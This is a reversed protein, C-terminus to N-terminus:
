IEQILRLLERRLEHPPLEHNSFRERISAPIPYKAPKAQSLDIDTGGLLDQFLAGPFHGERLLVAGEPGVSLIPFSGEVNPSPHPSYLLYAIGQERGFKLAKDLDTIEPLGSINMSTAGPLDVGAKKLERVLGTIAPHGDPLMVQLWDINGVSHSVLVPPLQADPRLPLRLPAVSGLRAALEAPDLFIPRLDVPINEKDILPVLDAALLTASLPRGTRKEGKIMEVKQAAAQNAADVWLSGVGDLYTGIAEGEAVLQAAREINAENGLAGIEM